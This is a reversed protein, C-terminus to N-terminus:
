VPTGLRESIQAIRQAVSGTVRLFPIKRRNLEKVYWADQMQRFRADQRTGDQVFGFDPDCLIVLDYRREALRKLQPSARRFLHRSYFLTTLPSTDCFLFRRARLLAQEEAAVQTEGIHLLDEYALAGTKAEWLERGYEAVHLTGFHHALAEALTSKGSSEGGLICIRRVFSAYVIPSVWQRHAELDARIMTGSVPVAQRARDVSVHRVAPASPNHQRFFATFERAFGDGYDESTFVADVATGVVKRCLAATFHRHLSDEAENPPMSPREAPDPFWQRLRAETVVLRRAQPFLAALWKERRDAECGPLEPNSYSIVVVERCLEFARQIVLAHGRHLPSFKGVVLGTHFPKSM